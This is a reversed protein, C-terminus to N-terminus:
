RESLCKDTRFRIAINLVVIIFGISKYVNDPLFEQLLPLSELAYPLGSLMSLLVLNAIITFSRRAGTLKRYNKSKM